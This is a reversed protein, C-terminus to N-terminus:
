TTLRAQLSAQPEDIPRTGSGTDQPHTGQAQPFLHLETLLRRCSENRLEDPRWRYFLDGVRIGYSVLGGAETYIRYASIVPMRHAIASGIIQNRYRGTFADPMMILGAHAEGVLANIAPEIDAPDHLSLEVPQVGHATSAARFSPLFFNGHDPATQPNFLIAVRRIRPDIDNLIDLWKGGM